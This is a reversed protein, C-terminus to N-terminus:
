FKLVIGGGLRWFNFNDLTLKGSQVIDATNFGYAKYYRADARLGLHGFFGIVGGGADFTFYNNSTSTPNPVVISSASTVNLYLDGAGFAGYVKVAGIKPGILTNGSFTVVKSKSLANASNDILNPYYTLETEGGFFGGVGGLSIGFGPKTASGVSSPSTVTTAVFPNIFGQAFAGTSSFLAFVVATIVRFRNMAAM